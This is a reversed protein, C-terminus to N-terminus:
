KALKPRNSGANSYNDEIKQIMKLAFPRYFGTKAKEVYLSLYYHAQRYDGMLQYMKGVTYYAERYEPDKAVAKLSYEIAKQYGWNRGNENGVSMLKQVMEQYLAAPTPSGAVAKLMVTEYSAFDKRDAYIRGLNQWIVPQNFGLAVAKKMNREAEVFNGENFYAVGLASYSKAFDPSKQLADLWFTKHDSWVGVRQMTPIALLLALSVPVIFPVRKFQLVFLAVLLSFGVMPLYLYREGLPTWPINGLYAMVPPVIGALVILIPLLFARSWRLLLCVAPLAVALAAYASFKDFSLITFNLPLPFLLKRLYFGYAAVADLLVPHQKAGPAAIGAVVSAVGRDLVFVKGASRLYIYLGASVALVAIPPLAGKLKKDPQQMLLFLPVIAYLSVASEKAWLSCIAALFLCCLTAPSSDERLNVALILALLFFLTCLLDPRASIWVVAETNIPHLLFVLGALLPFKGTSSDNPLSCALYYVLLSNIIHLAINVAHYGPADGAIVANAVYSLVILPRYYQHGGGLFLERLTYSNSSVAAIMGTDDISLFGALTASLYAILGVTVIIGIDLLRAGV